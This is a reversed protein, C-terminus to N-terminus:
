PARLAPIEGGRATALLDEVTALPIGLDRAARAGISTSGVRGVVVLTVHESVETRVGFGLSEAHAILTRRDVGPHDTLVITGAGRGTPVGHPGPAPESTRARSALAVRRGDPGARLFGLEPEVQGGRGPAAFVLNAPAMDLRAVPEIVPDLVRPLRDRHLLRLSLRARTMAVYLKRPGTAPDSRLVREPEVLLVHDYELGKAADIPVLVLAAGVEDDVSRPDLGHETLELGLRALTLSPGIIGITDEPRATARLEAVCQAIRDADEAPDTLQQVRVPEGGPIISRPESLDLDIMVHLRNAAELIPQTTRYSSTLEELDDAEIGASGLHEEWTAPSWGSTAQALDGLLTLSGRTRRALMRLQMPSFDQAEDVVVHAYMPIGVNADDSGLQSAAEDLLPLDEFTWPHDAPRDARRRITAQQAPTLLGEAAAELRDPSTLLGHIAERPSISPVAARVFADVRRPDLIPRGRPVVATPAAAAVAAALQEATRHENLVRRLRDRVERYAAAQSQAIALLPELAAAPVAALLGDGLAAPRGPIRARARLFRDIVEAMQPLGKVLATPADDHQTPAVDRTGLDEIARHLVQTEGLGPLVQDVYGIFTRSPGVFLVDSQSLRGRNRYLQLSIRHLAIVTKGTGPGGQIVLTRELPREMLEYQRAQITAVISDLGTGSRRRLQEILPDAFQSSSTPAPQPSTPRGPRSPESRESSRATRAQSPGSKSADKQPRGDDAAVAAGGDVPVPDRPLVVGLPEVDFYEHLTRDRGVLTRKLAVSRGDEFRQPDFFAQAIEAQWSVLHPYPEDPDGVLVKGVYVTRGAHAGSTFDVRGTVMLSRREELAILLGELRELRAAAVAKAAVSGAAQVPEGLRRALGDAEGYIAAVRGREHGLVQEDVGVM